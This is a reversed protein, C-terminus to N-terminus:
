HITPRCGDEHYPDPYPVVFEDTALDFVIGTDRSIEDLLKKGRDNTWLEPESRVTKGSITSDPIGDLLGLRWISKITAPSIIQVPETVGWRPHNEAWWGMSSRRLRYHAGLYLAYHQARSLRKVNM